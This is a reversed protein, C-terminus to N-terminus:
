AKYFPIDDYIGIRFSLSPEGKPSHLAHHVLRRNEWIVIDGDEYAHAQVHEEQEIFGFLKAMVAKNEEHTLGEIGTTFGSSIYLSKAGTLPHEIVAPHTLIPVLKEIDALIDIVAKDIDEPTIKYRWKADQVGRKGDVLKRLESPLGAYVVEMDIFKTGRGTKPLIQPYVMTFSLPEKSFQYDTHWYRGTGSVGLKRGHEDPVNGSVFIEPFEPHQYNQQFYIQPRGIKRAFEVYEAKSLNQGRFKVLKHAYLLERIKAGDEATARRCDFDDV